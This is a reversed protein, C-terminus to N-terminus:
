EAAAAVPEVRQLSQAERSDFTEVQGCMQERLIAALGFTGNGVAPLKRKRVAALVNQDNLSTQMVQGRQRSIEFLSELLHTAHEAPISAQHEDFGPQRGEQSDRM